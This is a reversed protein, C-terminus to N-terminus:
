SKKTLLKLLRLLHKRNLNTEEAVETLVELVKNMRTELEAIRREHAATLGSVPLSRPTKKAGEKRWYAISVINSKEEM